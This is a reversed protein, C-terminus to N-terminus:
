IYKLNCKIFEISNLYKNTMNLSTKLIPTTINYGVYTVMNRM